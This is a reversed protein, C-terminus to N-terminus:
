SVYRIALYSYRQLGLTNCTLYCQTIFGMVANYVYSLIKINKCWFALKSAIKIDYPLSFRTENITFVYFRRALFRNGSPRSDQCITHLM